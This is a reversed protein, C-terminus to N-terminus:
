FPLRKWGRRLTKKRLIAPSQDPLSATRFFAMSKMNQRLKTSSQKQKWERRSAKSAMNPWPNVRCCWPIRLSPRPTLQTNPQLGPARAPNLSQRQRLRLQPQRSLVTRSTSPFQNVPCCYRNLGTINRGITSRALINRGPMNRRRNLMNLLNSKTARRSRNVTIKRQLKKQANGNLIIMAATARQAILLANVDVVVGAAADAGDARVRGSRNKGAMTKQRQPKLRSKKRLTTIARM